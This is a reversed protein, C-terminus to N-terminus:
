TEPSPNVWGILFGLIGSDPFFIGLPRIGRYDPGTSQRHRLFPHPFREPLVRASEMALQSIGLLLIEWRTKEILDIRGVDSSVDAATEYGRFEPM